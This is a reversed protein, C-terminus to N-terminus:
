TVCRAEHAPLSQRLAYLACPRGAGIVPSSPLTLFWWWPEYITRLCLAGRDPESQTTGRYAETALVRVAM